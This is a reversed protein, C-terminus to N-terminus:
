FSGELFKNSPEKKQGSERSIIVHNFDQWIPDLNFEGIFGGKAVKLPGLSLYSSDKELWVYYDQGSSSEFDALISINSKDESRTILAMQNGLALELKEGKNNTAKSGFVEEIRNKVSPTPAPELIMQPTNDNRRSLFYGVGIIIFVFAVTIVRKNM